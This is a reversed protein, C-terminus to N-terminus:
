LKILHRLILFMRQYNDLFRQFPLNINYQKNKPTNLYVPIICNDSTNEKNIIKIEGSFESNEKNPSIATVEVIVPVGTELDEGSEPKFTWNAWSPKNSIEWDLLTGAVGINEVTFNGKVTSGPQVNSWSLSGYCELDPLDSKDDTLIFALDDNLQTLPPQKQYANANGDESNMWLFSCGNPSYTSQISVWGKSLEICPELQAEFYLMEHLNGGFWEYMIGTGNVSYEIDVFSYVEAGPKSDNDDYFTINIKMGNPDCSVWGFVVWKMSFGWWHIDCISNTINWFDEFVQINYTGSDSTYSNKLPNDPDKPLQKFMDGRDDRAITTKIIPHKCSNSYMEISAPNEIKNMIGVAPISTAILLICIFIYTTKM